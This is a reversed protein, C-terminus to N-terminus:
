PIWSHEVEISAQIEGNASMVFSEWIRFFETNGEANRRANRKRRVIDIKGVSLM